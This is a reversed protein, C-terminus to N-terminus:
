KEFKKWPDGSFGPPALRVQFGSGNAAANAYMVMSNYLAYYANEDGAISPAFRLGQSTMHNVLEPVTDGKASFTGDLYKAAGPSTLGQIASELPELFRKAQMYSVSDMEGKNWQDRANNKVTALGNQVQKFLKPDIRGSSAQSVLTPIENALKEQEKSSLVFPWELHGGNRLPGISESKGGTVNIEKMLVPDLKVPPGQVGQSSMNRIFPMITNQAKGSTIETDSAKTMIRQLQMNDIKAQQQTFTPRNADEYMKEDFTKRKTDLKAQNAQERTIRAQEVDQTAQGQARLLDAQGRMVNGPGFGGYGPPPYYGPPYYQAKVSAASALWLMLTALGRGLVKAVSKM